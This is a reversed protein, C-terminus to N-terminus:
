SGGPDNSAPHTPLASACYIFPDEDLPPPPVDGGFILDPLSAAISDWYTKRELIIETQFECFGTTKDRTEGAFGLHSLAASVVGKEPLASLDGWGVQLWPALPNVPVGVLDTVGAVPDYNLIDPIYAAQELARRLFWNSVPLEREVMVPAGALTAIGGKHGAERRAELLVRSAVGAARPTSFSTGGVGQYCDEADHCYPLDQYFDSLFDPFNGSLLSRGESDGEEIGSVGISWWPGAGARLPTLGPGNGGSSFHLKGMEVVAPYSNRFARWEPLPFGTNPISIGYSTSIMDVAPHLFAYDHSADNALDGETEVFLIVAEPNATLVAASTGIGHASKNIDPVLVPLEGAVFSTMVVNTGKVWYAEGRKLSSWIAQDAAIDAQLNGTRTLELVNEPKVGLEQLVSPTVASPATDAYIPSGAYYFDHYANIASDIVAVVVRTDSPLTPAAVGVDDESVDADASGAVCGGPTTCELVASGTFATAVGAFNNVRAIYDGSQPEAITAQEAAVGDQANFAGASAIVAGSTDLVELDLDEVFLDWEVRVVLADYSCGEPVVFSEDAADGPIGASGSWEAITLSDGEAMCLEGARPSLSLGPEDGRGGTCAALAVSAAVAALILNKM